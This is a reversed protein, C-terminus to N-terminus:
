NKYLASELWITSLNKCTKAGATSVRPVGDGGFYLAVFLSGLFSRVDFHSNVLLADKFIIHLHKLLV